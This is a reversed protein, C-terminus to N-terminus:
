KGTPLDLDLYFFTTSVFKFRSITYSTSCFYPPWSFRRISRCICIWRSCNRKRRWCVERLKEVTTCYNQEVFTPLSFTIDNTVSLRKSVASPRSPDAFNPLPDSAEFLMMMIWLAEKRPTLAGWPGTWYRAKTAVTNMGCTRDETAMTNTWCLKVATSTFKLHYFCCSFLSRIFFTTDSSSLFFCQFPLLHLLLRNATGTHGRTRKTQFDNRKCIRRHLWSHHNRSRKCWFNVSTTPIDLLL